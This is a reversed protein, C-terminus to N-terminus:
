APRMDLLSAGRETILHLVANGDRRTSLLGAERLVTAHHSATSPSVGIRRALESTTCVDAAAELAMARTRGLLADLAPRRGEGDPAWIAMADEAHFLAPYFLVYPAAEDAVDYYLFPFHQCFVSPVLVLSRGVLHVDRDPALPQDRRAAESQQVELVPSQWRVTSHLTALLKEVGGEAMGRARIAQDAALHARIGEWYPVVAWSSYDCLASAFQKRARLDGGSLARLWSGTWSSAAFPLSRLPELEQQVVDDHAGLVVELAEDMSSAPGAITVLDIHTFLQVLRVLPRAGNDVHGQIEERWGGFLPSPTRDQLLALSFLTEALPGWSRSVRVRALDEATFHVRLM